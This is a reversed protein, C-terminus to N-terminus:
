ASVEGRGKRRVKYLAASSVGAARAVVTVPVGARVLEELLVARRQADAAQRSLRESIEQVEQLKRAVRVGYDKPARKVPAAKAVAKVPARGM